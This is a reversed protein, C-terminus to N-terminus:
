SELFEKAMSAIVEQNSKSCEKLFEIIEQDLSEGLIQLASLKTEISHHFRVINMLDNPIGPHDIAALAYLAASEVYSETQKPLMIFELLKERAEIPRIIELFSCTDAQLSKSKSQLFLFLEDLTEKDLFDQRIKRVEEIQHFRNPNRYDFLSIVLQKLRSM